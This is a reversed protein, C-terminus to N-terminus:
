GQSTRAAARLARHIEQSDQHAKTFQLMGLLSGQDVYIPRGTSDHTHFLWIGEWGDAPAETSGRLFPAEQLSKLLLAEVAADTLEFPEDLVDFSRYGDRGLAQSRRPGRGVIPLFRRHGRALRLGGLTGLICLLGGFIVAEGPQDIPSRSLVVALLVLVM